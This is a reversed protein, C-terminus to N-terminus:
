AEQQATWQEARKALEDEPVDEVHTVIWWLNGVPDRVGGSRDGYFQDAVEQVSTAGAELARAYTADCDEVYLHIAGPMAPWQESADATMVISDGVRFEAHGVSGEAGAMRFTEEAGFVEKVFSLLKDAGEVVLYPTVSHYGRPIPEVAM